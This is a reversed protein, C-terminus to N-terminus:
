PKRFVYVTRDALDGEAETMVPTDKPDASNRYMRDEQHLTFGYSTIIARVSSPDLRHLRGADNTERGDRANYFTVVYTGGPKMAKFIKTHFGSMEVGTLLLEHFCGACWVVDVGRPPEFRNLDISQFRSNPHRSVFDQHYPIYPEAFLADYMWLEGKEGIIDSLMPSWYNGYASLEVIRQGPRINALQLLEAPKRYADHVTAQPTRTTATVADRVPDRIGRAPVAYPKPPPADVPLPPLPRAQPAETTAADAPAPEAEAALATVEACAALAAAVTLPRLMSKNM